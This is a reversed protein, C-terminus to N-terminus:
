RSLPRIQKRGFLLADISWAGPGIMALTAGLTALVLPLWFNGGGSLAIWLERGAVIAGAVPTWFGLLLLLAAAAEILHLAFSAPPATGQFRTILCCVLAAATVLRQLILGFGPFGSAFTSFLRQLSAGM